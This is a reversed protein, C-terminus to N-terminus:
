SDTHTVEPCRKAFDIQVLTLRPYETHDQVKPEPQLNYTAAIASGMSLLARLFEL